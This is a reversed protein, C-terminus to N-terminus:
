LSKTNDVLGEYHESYFNEGLYRTPFFRCLEYNFREADGDLETFRLEGKSISHFYLNNSSPRYRVSEIDTLPMKLLITDSDFLLSETTLGLNGKVGSFTCGLVILTKEM